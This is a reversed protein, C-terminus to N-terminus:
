VAAPDSRTIAARIEALFRDREMWRGRVRVDGNGKDAFIVAYAQELLSRLRETEGSARGAESIAAGVDGLDQGCRERYRRQWADREAELAALRDARPTSPPERYDLLADAAPSRSDIVGRRVLAAVEDALADACRKDLPMSWVPAAPDISGSWYGIRRCNPCEKQYSMVFVFRCGSCQWRGEDVLPKYDSM